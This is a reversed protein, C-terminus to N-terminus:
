LKITTFGYPDDNRVKIKEKLVRVDQAIRDLSRFRRANSVQYIGKYGKIDFWIEEM